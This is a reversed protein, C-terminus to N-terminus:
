KCEVIKETSIFETKKSNKPIEILEFPFVIAQTTVCNAGPKNEFYYVVISNKNEIIRDIQFKYGGNNKVGLAILLVQNKEFDITPIEPKDHFRSMAQTWIEEFENQNTITKTQHAEFGSDQSVYVSKYTLQKESVTVQSSSCAFFLISIFIFIFRM